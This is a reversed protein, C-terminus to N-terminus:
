DSHHQWLWATFVLALCLDPLAALLAPLALSGTLVRGVLLLAFVGKGWAGVALVGRDARGRWGQWAYAAGFALVWTSLVWLYFPDAEALGFWRRFWPVPPAFIIAGIINMPGCALLLARMPPSLVGRVTTAM